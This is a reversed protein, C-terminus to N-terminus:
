KDICGLALAEGTLEASNPAPSLDVRVGRGCDLCASDFVELGGVRYFSPMRHGRMHASAVASCELAHRLADRIEDTADRWCHAPPNGRRGEPTARLIDSADSLRRAVDAYVSTGYEAHPGHQRKWERDFRLFRARQVLLYPALAARPVSSNGGQKALNRLFILEGCLEDIAALANM